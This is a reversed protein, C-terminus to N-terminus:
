EGEPLVRSKLQFATKGEYFWRRKFHFAINQFQHNQFGLDPADALEAVRAVTKEIKSKCNGIAFTSCCV